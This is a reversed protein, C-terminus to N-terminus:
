QAGGASAEQFLTDNPNPAGPQNITSRTTVTNPIIIVVEATNDFLIPEFKLTISYNATEANRSLRTLVNTFPSKGSSDGSSYTAFKLTDAFKNISAINNATGTIELQNKTIDLTTTSIFVDSPTVTTLYGFLRSTEPKDEHLKPLAELQNQITLIKDIDNISEVKAVEIAIDETLDDINKKQAFQVYSVLLLLVAIASVSVITSISIILRKTRKAKIYQKKVDPLLNFQIM